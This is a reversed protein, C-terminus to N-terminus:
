VLSTVEVRQTLPDVCVRYINDEEPDWHALLKAESVSNDVTLLALTALATNYAHLNERWLYGRQDYLLRIAYPAKYREEITLGALECFRDFWGSGKFKSM